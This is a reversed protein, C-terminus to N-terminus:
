KGGILELIARLNEEPNESMNIIYDSYEKYLGMREAAIREIADLSTSLPRGERSLFHNPRNLFFLVGNQALCKMNSPALVIGGGTSIIQGSVKGVRCVVESELRRFEAEGYKEFIVPISLGSEQEIVLDTDVLPRRLADSLLQGMTTKGSGPMGILVINQCKGELSRLATEVQNESLSGGTFREFAKAAQAVLMSLGNACPIHLSKAQLLLHTHLPNYILDIVGACHPYDSLTLLSEGNHPYMGVPTTNIIIEADQHHKLEDFPISGNRPSRSAVVVQRAGLDRVAKEVTLSAGGAGLLLVKEGSLNIGSKQLLYLFGHYDTNDGILLGDKFYLTNVAGIAAAVPTLRDCYPIVKEKFPITVNLGTFSRKAMFDHFAAEELEILQYTYSGFGEHIMKSFSHGLKGGILGYLM